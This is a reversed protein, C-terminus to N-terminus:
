RREPGNRGGKPKKLRDGYAPRVPGIPLGLAEDVGGAKLTPPPRVGDHARPRKGDADVKGATQRAPPRKSPRARGAKRPPRTM